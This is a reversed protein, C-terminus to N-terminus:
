MKKVFCAKYYLFEADNEPSHNHQIDPSIKTVWTKFEEKSDNGLMDLMDSPDICSHYVDGGMYRLSKNNPDIRYFLEHVRGLDLDQCDSVLTIRRKNDIEYHKTLARLFFYLEAAVIHPERGNTKIEKFLNIYKSWFELLCVDDCMQGAVPTLDWRKKFLKERPWSADEPGFCLGISLLPHNFNDGGAEVDITLLYKKNLDLPPCTSFWPFSDVSLQQAM